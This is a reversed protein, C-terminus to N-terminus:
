ADSFSPNRLKDLIAEGQQRAKQESPLPGFSRQFMRGNRRIAWQFSKSGAAPPLVELTFTESMM